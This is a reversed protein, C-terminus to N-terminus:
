SETSMSPITAKRIDDLAEHRVQAFAAILTDVDHWWETDARTSLNHVLWGPKLHPFCHEIFRAVAITMELTDTESNFRNTTVKHISLREIKSSRHVIRQRLSNLVEPPHTITDLPLTLNKLAPCSEALTLLSCFSPSNGEISSPLSLTRLNRWNNGLCFEEIHRDTIPLSVGTMGFFVLNNCRILPRLTNEGLLISRGTGMNVDFVQLAPAITAIREISAQLALATDSFMGQTALGMSAPTHQLINTCQALKVTTLSRTPNLMRLIKSTEVPDGTLQLDQLSPFYLTSDGVSVNAVDVIASHSLNILLHTLDPLNTCDRFFSSPVDSAPIFTANLVQLRSFKPICRLIEFSLRGSLILEQVATAKPALTSLLSETFVETTTNIGGLILNTLSLGHILFLPALLNDTGRHFSPPLNPIYLTKLAPFLTLDKEAMMRMIFHSSYSDYVDGFPAKEFTPLISFIPILSTMMRWLLGSAPAVFSRATLCAFFLAKRTSIDIDWIGDGWFAEPDFFSLILEIIDENQFVSSSSNPHLVETTKNHRRRTGSTEPM